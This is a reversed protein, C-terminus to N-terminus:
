RGYATPACRGDDGPRAAPEKYYRATHFDTPLIDDDPYGYIAIEGLGATEKHGHIVVVDNYIVFDPDYSDEHEGGIYITRYFGDSATPDDDKPLTNSNLRRVITQTQGVRNFCWIPTTLPINGLMNRADWGSKHNNLIM